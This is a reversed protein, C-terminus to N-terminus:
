FRYGPKLECRYVKTQDPNIRANCDAWSLLLSPGLPFVITARNVEAQISIGEAVAPLTFNLTQGFAVPYSERVIDGVIPQVVEAELLFTATDSWNRASVQIRRAGKAIGGPEIKTFPCPGAVCSARANRLENGEGADISASAITAKWKRDPSCPERGNCPVNGTNVVQFIQVASGVNVATTAKISYRALVHAVVVEPRNPEARAEHPIPVMRAVYVRDGAVEKLDLPQYEPHRLRLTIQQGPRVGKPLALSFFGSSDSKADAVALGNAVSIEADAIPLEKKTDIDQKIVAGNASIPVPEKRHLRRTLLVAALASGVTLSMTGWAVAKWGRTM